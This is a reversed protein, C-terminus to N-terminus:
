SKSKLKGELEYRWFFYKLHFHQLMTSFTRSFLNYSSFLILYDCWAVCLMRYIRHNIDFKFYIFFADRHRGEMNHIWMEFNSRYNNNTWFTILWYWICRCKGDYGPMFGSRLGNRRGAGVVGHYWIRARVCRFILCIYNM